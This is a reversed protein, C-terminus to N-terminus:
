RGEPQRLFEALGALNDTNILDVGATRMAQWFNRQDPAGWFRVRRGQAHAKAVIENLRAAEAEPFEGSGRWRFTSSWSASIWPILERPAESELDALLGDYAAFRVAERAFMEKSRNGSIIVTIANTQTVGNRFTTLMDAYNTLVARLAPYTTPWDTKLDILLSFEPGKPFVRGGNRKVRERLPDLYLAQLTREPKVDKRNHAVLLQGDVLFIDAEVSCFGEALADLLPRPHEYDNHAHARTLPKPKRGPGRVVRGPKAGTHEGDKLVQAGNVFVDRVGTAFQHPKEYSAHDQITAPDFIVVDAFYGPRLAGRRDLKLTEAPLTTLRRVAEALSIIKEERVYQGLLRAFNGYARPHPNSKLFMGRPAYSGEDSDFSVWPLAIQKRVNDESMLFYITSVRSDDEIVLDMATDEPSTGRLKAVQALTKGTLPKLKENKFGVLLIRDPSGAALYLSEWKETPTTMEKRVRERIAPDKLRAAWAKFGGEQVWPPMAADLGTAGATYTYMDATLRLGRQRAAEIKAIAADMKHWNSKGAAKLHYVQAPLGATDAILILEDLAELFTNGESRLHSIYMGEYRAAVRCLEILEDTQAYFAPAYILSSGVGLAGEEMAGAVLQKMRELEAATPPRNAYGIEHIRVTTAGVFSAVNCSVGRRVLHELYEGLTTWAIEYKIDGQTERQIQKMADNWPGMSEGEGMVELTVGQRIDGESRGDELLSENAWSLMNIFGPAVALGRADLRQRATINTLVGIASIKDGTIAVDGRFPAGGSGDYILGNTILLDCTDAAPLRLWPLCLAALCLFKRM